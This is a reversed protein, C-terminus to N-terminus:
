VSQIIRFYRRGVYQYGGHTGYWPVCVINVVDMNLM